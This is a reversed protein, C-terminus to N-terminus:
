PRASLGATAAEIAGAARRQGIGSREDVGRGTGTPSRRLAAISPSSRSGRSPRPPCTRSLHFDAYALSADGDCGDSAAM